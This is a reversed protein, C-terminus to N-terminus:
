QSNYRVSFGLSIMLDNAKRNAKEQREISVCLSKIREDPRIFKIDVTAYISIIPKVLGKKRVISLAPKVTLNLM